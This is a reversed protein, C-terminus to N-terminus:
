IISELKNYLRCLSGDIDQTSGVNTAKSKWRFSANSEQPIGLNLGWGYGNYIGKYIM